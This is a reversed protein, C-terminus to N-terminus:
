QRWIYSQGFYLLYGGGFLCRHDSRESRRVNRAGANMMWQIHPYDITKIDMRTDKPRFEEQRLTTGHDTCFWTTDTYHGKVAQRKSLWRQCRFCWGAVDREPKM